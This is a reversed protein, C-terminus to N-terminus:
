KQQIESSASIGAAALLPCIFPMELSRRVLQKIRIIIVATLRYTAPLQVPKDLIMSVSANEQVSAFILGVPFQRELIRRSLLFCLHFGAILFSLHM